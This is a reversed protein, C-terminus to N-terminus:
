PRIEEQTATYHSLKEILAIRDQSAESGLQQIFDQVLERSANRLQQAGCFDAAYRKVQEPDLEYQHVLENLQDRLLLKGHGNISVVKPRVSNKAPPVPAFDLGSASGIEEISCLGVGYAKRLARNVARTEAVRMEAGHVANSVNSPDADGYGYFARGKRNYVVAEFIWRNAAPDCFEKVPEVRIGQCQRRLALKLLGSHTIYWSGNLLIMDGLELSLNYLATLKNLVLISQPSANWHARACIINMRKRLSSYRAVKSSNKM